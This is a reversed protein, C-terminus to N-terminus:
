GGSGNREPEDLGLTDMSGPADDPDPEDVSRRLSALPDPAEATATASARTARLAALRSEPMAEAPADPVDAPRDGAERPM